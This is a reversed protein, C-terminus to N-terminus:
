GLIFQMEVKDLPGRNTSENAPLRGSPYVTRRKQSFYIITKFYENILTIMFTKVLLTSFTAFDKIPFEM